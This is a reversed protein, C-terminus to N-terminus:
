MCRRIPQIYTFTIPEWGHRLLKWLCGSLLHCVKLSEDVPFIFLYIFLVDCRPNDGWLVCDLCTMDVESHNLWACIVWKIHQKIYFKFFLVFLNAFCNEFLFCRHRDNTPEQQQAASHIGASRGASGTIRACLPFSLSFILNLFFFYFLHGDTESFAPNAAVPAWEPVRMKGYCAFVLPLTDRLLQEIIGTVAGSCSPRRASLELGLWVSLLGRDVPFFSFFICVCLFAELKSMSGGVLDAADDTKENSSDKACRHFTSRHLLWTAAPPAGLVM